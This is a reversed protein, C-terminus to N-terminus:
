LLAQAAHSATPKLNSVQFKNLTRTLDWVWSFHSVSTALLASMPKGTGRLMVLVQLTRAKWGAGSSWQEEGLQKVCGNQIDQKNSERVKTERRVRTDQSRTEWEVGQDEWMCPETQVRESAEPQKSGWTVRKLGYRPTTMDENKKM